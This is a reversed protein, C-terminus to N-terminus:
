AAGRERSTGSFASEFVSDIQFERVGMALLRLIDARGQAIPDGNQYHQTNVSAVM